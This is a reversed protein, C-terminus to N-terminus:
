DLASVAAVYEDCTNGVGRRTAAARDPQGAREWVFAALERTAQRMQDLTKAERRLRHDWERVHRRFEPNAWRPDDRMLEDLRGARPRRPLRSPVGSGRALPSADARQRRAASAAEAITSTALLAAIAQERKRAKGTGTM